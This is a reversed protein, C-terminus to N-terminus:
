GGAGADPRGPAPAAAVDDTVSGDPWEVRVRYRGLVEDHFREAARARRAYSWDRRVADRVDDLGV